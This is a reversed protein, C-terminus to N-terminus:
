YIAKYFAKCAKATDISKNIAASVALGGIGTKLLEEVNQLQIGGAAILPIDIKHQNLFEIAKKYGEVGWHAENNPKTDTHGFPGCGIYDVGDQVHKLIQQTNNASAGLTKNEGIHLRIAKLDAQMNEVHVGQIDALHVLHYHETIILTTGWDDCINAMAHIDKLMEDDSKSFCRYQIWNVGAECATQAQKIHSIHDLDQTLYHFKSIFKKM